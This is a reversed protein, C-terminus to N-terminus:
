TEVSRGLGSAWCCDQSHFLSILHSFLDLHSLLAPSFPNAQYSNFFVFGFFNGNLLMPATYSARYGQAEIRQSHEQEGETFITLDEVVRPRGQLLIEQLSNADALRAQYHKLPRDDYGSDVFTKLLDTKPDYQIIDYKEKDLAEYVQKGSNLSVERESSIGGSLLALTLKQM